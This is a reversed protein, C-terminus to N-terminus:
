LTQPDTQPDPKVIQPKLGGLDM